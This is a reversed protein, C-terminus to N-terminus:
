IGLDDLWSEIKMLAEQSEMDAATFSDVADAQALRNTKRLQELKRPTTLLAIPFKPEFDFEQLPTPLLREVVEENSTPIEGMLMMGSVPNSSIYAQAILAAASRAFLVPPFAAAHWALRLQAKLDLVFHNMLKESHLSTPPDPLSLDCHVSTFGKMSLFSSLHEVGRFSDPDWEKVSVFLLPTPVERSASASPNRVFSSSSRQALLARSRVLRRTLSASLTM